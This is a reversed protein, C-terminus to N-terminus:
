NLLLTMRAALQSRDRFFGFPFLFNGGLLQYKLDFILNDSYRYNLGMPFAYVGNLGVVATIGPTLRGHLYSTELHTQFFSEYPYLDVFDTAKTQLQGITQLTLAETNVGTRVGTSTAKQQGGFRYDDKSFTESLNWQGVYATVWVFSNSPNLPRFFFFRDHGIEWRLMDARPIDGEINGAPINQGLAANLTRRLVPTRLFAEFPINRNPIFAPENHFFEGELRVIGNLWSSFFDTSAGFVDVLGHHLETTLYTPGRLQPNTIPARSLDLPLFRPVPNTAFTRYYWASTTYERNVVAGVRVGYRSNSMKRSPLHDFLTVQIRGLLPRVVATGIDPPILNGVLAQPDPQPPSYPSVLPLPTVSVTTDISGPVLYTELYANSLFKWSDFLSYTARMTWLPIRAEDIDQFIGPVAMSLNFPNNADLLGITDSEGWSIAQRGLRLFLPGKTLNFYVENFRFPVDQVDGSDGYGGLVPDGQYSYVKEPEVPFDAVNAESELHGQALRGQISQRARDYQGTGYEYIGDYFGWLAMRFSLDDFFSFAQPQYRTLQAEFEPNFFTRHSILQFPSRAPSTQPESGDAAVAAETYMRGRIQFDRNVDLYV